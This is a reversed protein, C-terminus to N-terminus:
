FNDDYTMNLDTNFTLNHHINKKKVVTFYKNNTLQLYQYKVYSTYKKNSSSLKKKNFWSHKYTINTISFKLNTKNTKLKNERLCCLLNNASM